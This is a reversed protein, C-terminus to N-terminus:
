RELVLMALIRSHCASSRASLYYLSAIRGARRACGTRSCDDGGVLICGRHLGPFDPTNITTPMITGTSVPAATGSETM